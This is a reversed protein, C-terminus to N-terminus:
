ICEVQSPAPAPATEFDEDYEAEDYEEEEAATLDNDGCGFEGADYDEAYEKQQSLAAQIRRVSSQINTAAASEKRRRLVRRSASSRRAHKQIKVAAEITAGTGREEQSNSSLTGNKRVQKDELYALTFIFQMAEVFDDVNNLDYQHVMKNVHHPTVIFGYGSALEKSAVLISEERNPRDIENQDFPKRAKSAFEESELHEAINEPLGGIAQAIKKRDDLLSLDDDIGGDDTESLSARLVTSERGDWKEKQMILAMVLVFQSFRVFEDMTLPGDERQFLHIFHEFQDYTMSEDIVDWAETVAAMVPYLEKMSLCGDHNKDLNEFDRQCKDLFESSTFYGAHHPPLEALVQDFQGGKELISMMVDVRFKDLSLKRSKAELYSRILTFQSLSVFDDRDIAGKSEDDFIEILDRCQEETVCIDGRVDALQVIVPVLEEATLYGNQDVDLEDFRDLCARVFDDSDLHQSIEDDLRALTEAVHEKSEKLRSLMEYIASAEDKEECTVNRSELSPSNISRMALVFQIFAVFESRDIRQNNNQDFKDFLDALLAERDGEIMSLSLQENERAFELVVPLMESSSLYGNKDVDARDYHKMCNSIMNDCTLSEAVSPPLLALVENLRKGGFTLLHRIRASNFVNEENLRLVSVNTGISTLEVRFPLISRAWHDADVYGDASATREVDAKTMLLCVESSTIPHYVAVEFDSTASKFVSVLWPSSANESEGRVLDERVTTFLLKANERSRASKDHQTELPKQPAVDIQQCGEPSSTISNPCEAVEAGSVHPSRATDKEDAPAEPATPTVPCDASALVALIWLGLKRASDAADRALTAWGSQRSAAAPPVLRHLIQRKSTSIAAPDINRMSELMADKKSRIKALFTSWDLDTPVIDGPAVLVLIAKGIMALRKPANCMNSIRDLVSCTVNMMAVQVAKALSEPSPSSCKSPSCLKRRRQRKMATGTSPRDGSYAEVTTATSRELNQSACQRRRQPNRVTGLRRVSRSRTAYPGGVCLEPTRSRRSNKGQLKSSSIPQLKHRQTESSQISRHLSGTREKLHRLQAQADDYWSVLELDNRPGWLGANISGEAPSAAISLPDASSRSESASSAHRYPASLSNFESCEGDHSNLNEDRCGFLSSLGRKGQVSTERQELFRQEECLLMSEAKRMRESAREESPSPCVGIQQKAEDLTRPLMLPNRVIKEPEVGLAFAFPTVAGIFDVDSKAIKLLYNYGHWEFPRTEDETRWEGVAECVELTTERLRTMADIFENKEQKDMSIMVPIEENKGAAIERERQARRILQEATVELSSIITERRLIAKLVKMELVPNTGRHRAFDLTRSIADFAASGGRESQQQSALAAIEDNRNKMHPEAEYAPIGKEGVPVRWGAERRRTLKRLQM